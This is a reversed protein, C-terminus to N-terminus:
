VKGVSGLQPRWRRAQGALRRHLDVVVAKGRATVRLRNGRVEALGADSLERATPDVFRIEGLEALALLVGRADATLTVTM